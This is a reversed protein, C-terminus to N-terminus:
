FRRGQFQLVNFRKSRSCGEDCYTDWSEAALQLIKLHHSELEFDAAIQQYWALTAPKLHSPATSQSAKPVATVSM